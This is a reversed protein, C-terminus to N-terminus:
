RGTRGCRGHDNTCRVSMITPAEAGENLPAKPELLPIGQKLFSQLVWRAAHMQPRPRDATNCIRSLAGAIDVTQAKCGMGIGRARKGSPNQLAEKVEGRLPHRLLSLSRMKM